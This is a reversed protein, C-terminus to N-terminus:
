QNEDLDLWCHEAINFVGNSYGLDEEDFYVIFPYSYEGGTLTHYSTRSGNWVIDWESKDVSGWTDEIWSELSNSVTSNSSYNIDSSTLCKIDDLLIRYEHNKKQESTFEDKYRDRDEIVNQLEENAGVIDQQLSQIVSSKQNSVLVFAVIVGILAFSM